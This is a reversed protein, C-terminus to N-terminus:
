RWSLLVVLTILIYLLYANVSGYQVRRLWSFVRDVARTLPRLARDLVVDPVHSHFSAPQAFVGEPKKGRVEPRLAWAFMRVLAQAFSSSSYQMSTASAAYGCDWTPVTGAVVGRMRAALIAGLLVIAAILAAAATTIAPLPALAALPARPGALEPAWSSVAGDLLPAVLSPAVGIVACAAALAAM